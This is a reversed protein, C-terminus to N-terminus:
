AMIKTFSPYDLKKEQNGDSPGTEQLEFDMM